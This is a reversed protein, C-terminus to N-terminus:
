LKHTLGNKNPKTAQPMGCIMWLFTPNHRQARDELTAKKVNYPLAGLNRNQRGAPRDRDNTLHSRSGWVGARQSTFYGPFRHLSGLNRGARVVFEAPVIAFFFPPM